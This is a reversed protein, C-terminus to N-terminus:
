GLLPSINGYFKTIPGSELSLNERCALQSLFTEIKLKSTNALFASSPDANGAPLYHCLGEGWTKTRNQRSCPSCIKTSLRM